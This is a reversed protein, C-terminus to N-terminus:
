TVTREGVWILRSKPIRNHIRVEIIEKGWIPQFHIEDTPDIVISWLDFTGVSRWAGHSYDWARVPSTATCIWPALWEGEGLDVNDTNPNDPTGHFHPGLPSRKGPLLGYRKISKLRDRPSWHYLPGLTTSM